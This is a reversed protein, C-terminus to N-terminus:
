NHLFFILFCAVYCRFGCFRLCSVHIRALFSAVLRLGHAVACPPLGCLQSWWCVLPCWSPYCCRWSRVRLVLACFPLCFGEPLWSMPACMGIESSAALSTTRDSVGVASLWVWEVALPFLSWRLVQVMVFFQWLILEFFALFWLFWIKNQWAYDVVKVHLWACSPGSPYDMQLVGIGSLTKCSQPWNIILLSLYFALWPDPSFVHRWVADIQSCFEAGCWVCVVRCGCVFCWVCVVVGCGCAFLHVCTCWSAFM